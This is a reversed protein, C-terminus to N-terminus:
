RAIVESNSAQTQRRAKERVDDGVLRLSRLLAPWDELHTAFIHEVTQQTWSPVLVNMQAPQAHIQDALAAYYLLNSEWSEALIRSSYGMLTPFTRLNLLELGYTNALTPKPTGFAQSIAEPSLEAPSEALLRRIEQALSSERDQAAQSRALLYMESPLVNEVAVRPQGSQLLDDIKRLRGPALYPDLAAIVQRRREANLAALGLLSEGYAMHVGVWHTQIPSVNWWRPVIATLMIQPVLDGWILAQERSPILFNQEAEALAYPLSALSGALRGGANSPWGSGPVYTAGWTQNAGQVGIFDHSRVFLPNTRLIQAGPPAYHMYTFGVLTDRLFGSLEGRLDSLKQPDKAAKDIAARLNLKRQDDIHQETWYGYSLSSREPSSLTSRPLQVESIRTALRGTLVTNLAQGKSVSDLNDALDFITNLSVLRQAEFIRILDEVMQQHTDSAGQPVGGALLDLMRDQASVGAPSKSAQLLSRVGARGADFVDKDGRIQAFPELLKALEPDAADRPISQQRVFIQWLAILAQATGAADARLGQNRIGDIARTTDLYALITSDKLTPVEAFVSYQAALTRYSRALRDMTAPELQKARRRDIDTLAMFIKLPENEASKRSLGFLAELVDDADKWQPAARTLKADYKGEPHEAFLRKWVDLGGPLHPKGDPDLRLRTTLLLMDTNSRFVPRAPGPSTVKGRIAAYFRKLREPETLYDKVPGEIRALSDFYSALWGDDRTILREIFATGKDPSVGGNLDAWAKESRAGGPVVAKGDRIQFMGGFFDLVHAYIKLRALPFAQRLQEATETDLKSLAVYLRCVSPDGLIYDIFEAQSQTKDKASVPPQWYDSSYLIPVRTPQYDLTFPRNTRLAQELDALPFGSDTTLFARSANVTELVLDSGCGGRMRYGIVRLLDATAPSECMDIRLTKGTGALKELERAQSLYRIVLKLYETQELAENATTARYGTTIINRALAPLLDAPSVDPSLAAMRAFSRLPGPIEIYNPSTATRLPPLALDKGGAASYAELDRASADRDGALLDLVALHQAVAARQEASANTRQLLQSLRSYAERAAPDHHRELFEAYARLTAPDNPTAAAAQRLGALAQEGDGGSELRWAQTAADQGTAWAASFVLGVAWWRCRKRRCTWLM